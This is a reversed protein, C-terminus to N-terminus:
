KKRFVNRLNKLNVTLKRIEDDKKGIDQKLWILENKMEYIEKPNDMTKHQKYSYKCFEGFKCM